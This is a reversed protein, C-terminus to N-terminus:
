GITETTSTKARAATIQAHIKGIADQIRNIIFNVEEYTIPENCEIKSQLWGKVTTIDERGNDISIFLELLQAIGLDLLATNLQEGHEGRGRKDTSPPLLNM